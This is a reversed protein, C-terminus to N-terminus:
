WAFIALRMGGCLTLPVLISRPKHQGGNSFQGAGHKGLYSAWEPQCSTLAAGPNPHTKTRSFQWGSPTVFVGIPRPGLHWDLATFGDLRENGHKPDEKTHGSTNSARCQLPLIANCLRKPKPVPHTRVRQFRNKL